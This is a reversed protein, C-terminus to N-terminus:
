HQGGSVNAVKGKKDDHMTGYKEWWSRIYLQTRLFNSPKSSTGHFEENFRIMATPIKRLKLAEYFEETQSIPTRLDLVGTMLLTPTKVKGAYMLPSRRLHESPDEWPLHEFNYYWSAGDTTGVFSIWDIVPCLSAAGAFRDTHGVIWATLVGGGSCGTVFLNKADVYGRGIVTDVSAMLDDYDKGPYDYKIANGFASGYGTSGRPNTYLVVYGAAANEQRTFSFAVNYMAHPGGHIDLVLPYKRSPDFDPPKVIWGQVKLGDRSTIWVEEMKGITKGALVDDNVSTLQRLEAPKKTDFAVVDNPHTADSRVAVAIGSKGISSVNLVQAGKTVERVGGKVSAFYLNTAGENEATFYVGSADAAWELRGPSRDFNGSIIHSGSGDANMIYLTADVHTDSTSDYGTYAILAGDPSAAPNLDPGKRTTLQKVDGSEVDVRYIESERWRWQADPSRLGSFVLAKGDPTWRGAGDNFDGSTLQRPTGGDAAVVFLHRFGEELFGVRDARYTLKQVIRPPETWKAGKPAAPMPIPWSEKQPVLMAFAIAKGDPNWEPNSPTDSVRSIQTTSGEADMYRVFLQTGTPEGKALYVIRGGDPAWKADQGNVLFRNKTGDVNMIWLSSEWRDNLKDIWRRTYIVQRGDPSLQPNQVDEWDLYNDLTLKRAPQQAALRPAPALLAVLLIARVFPVTRM